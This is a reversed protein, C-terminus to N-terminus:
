LVSNRDVSISHGRERERSAGGSGVSDKQWPAVWSELLGDVKPLLPWHRDVVGEYIDSVYSLDRLSLRRLGSVENGIRDRRKDLLSTSSLKRPTSGLIFPPCFCFCLPAYHSTFDNGKRSLIVNTLSPYFLPLQVCSCLNRIKLDSLTYTTYLHSVLSVRNVITM